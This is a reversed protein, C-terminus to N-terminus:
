YTKDISRLERKLDDEGGQIICLADIWLCDFGSNHTAEMEDKFM